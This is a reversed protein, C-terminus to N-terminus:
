AFDFFLCHTPLAKGAGSKEVQVTVIAGAPLAANALTGLSVQTFGALAIGGTVKSTATVITSAGGGAGNRVAITITVYDTDSAVVLADASIRVAALTSAQSVRFL